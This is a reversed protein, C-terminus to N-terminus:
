FGSRLRPGQAYYYHLYYYNDTNKNGIKVVLKKQCEKYPFSHFGRFWILTLNIFCLSLEGLYNHSWYKFTKNKIIGSHFLLLPIKTDEWQGIFWKLNAFPFNLNKKITRYPIFELFFNTQSTALTIIMLSIHFCFPTHCQPRAM